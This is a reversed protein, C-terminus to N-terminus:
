IQLYQRSIWVISSEWFLSEISLWMKSSWVYVIENKWVCVPSRRDDDRSSRDLCTGYSSSTVILSPKHRIRIHNIRFGM